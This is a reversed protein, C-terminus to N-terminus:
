LDELFYYKFNNLRRYNTGLFNFITGQFGEENKYFLDYWESNKNQELYYNLLSYQKM